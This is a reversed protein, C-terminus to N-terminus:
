QDAGGIRQRDPRAHATESGSAPHLESQILISRISSVPFDTSTSTPQRYSVRSFLRSKSKAEAPLYNSEAEFCM